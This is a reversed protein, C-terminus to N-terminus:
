VTKAKKAKPEEDTLTSPLALRVVASRKVGVKVQAALSGVHAPTVTREILTQNKTM